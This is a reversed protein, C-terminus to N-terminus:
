PAQCAVKYWRGTPWTHVASSRPMLAETFVILWKLGGAGATMVIPGDALIYVMDVDVQGGLAM